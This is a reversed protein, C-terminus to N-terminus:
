YNLIKSPIFFVFEVRRNIRKHAETEEKEVLLNESGLGIVKVRKTSLNGYAIIYKKIEESREESLKKNFEKNGESSAHGIIKLHFNPHSLLFNTILHLNNEMSPLIKSSGIEFNISEFTIKGKVSQVPIKAETNGQLFFIEEIRFFNDGEIVLLYRRNDILDFDFSGDERLYKPAVEVNKDLDIITVIGSFVEGTTLEVAKGSFRVLNNPKAEMPLPFSYLDLDSRGEATKSYYLYNSNADISFYYERGPTNVLPGINKPETWTKNIFYSKFIDFDGFNLLHGNSSFYLVNYKPHYHPSVENKQTNVIPGLNQAKKWKGKNDKESFYIDAAGFGGKRDSSFYLTDGTISLSPHSDWMLSNVNEGLNVAESWHNSVLLDTRYIDCNGMGKPDNCRVFFLTKRDQSICPSGENYPSNVKEFPPVRTWSNDRSKRAQYIDENHRNQGLHTNHSFIDRNRESSFLILDDYKGSIVPAYDEYESNILDGMNLLVGRPPRLTDIAKRREVLKYYHDLEM